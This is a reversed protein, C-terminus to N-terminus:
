PGDPLEELKKRTFVFIFKQLLISLGRILNYESDDGCRSRFKKHHLELNKIKGCYQCRWSDRQLIKDRLHRYSEPALRLRPQKPRIRTMPPQTGVAVAGNVQGLVNEPLDLIQLQQFINETASLAM